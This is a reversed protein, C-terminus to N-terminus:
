LNSRNIPVLKKEELQYIIDCYKLTNTRHSIMLITINPRLKYFSEMIEKETENDLASTAEDLILFSPERYLARAIGIRQLQGGSLRVGREGVRTQYGEPTEEIFKDIKAQSTAIGIRKRDIDEQPIGFAINELITSDSLFINQPVHVISSQWSNINFSNISHMNKGDIMIRGKQPTILGMILDITTSKGSGTEGKIGIFDGKKITFSLDEVVNPIDASYTFSINECNINNKLTIKKTNNILLNSPLPKELIDLLNALSGKANQPMSCGEYIKQVMPLLRLSGLALAGLTPLASDLGGAKVMLYGALGIIAIGIPEILYRPYASLFFGRADLRRLPQDTEFYIKTYIPQTQDLLINRIAGIGEQLVQVLNRNLKVVKKSIRSIPKITTYLAISYVFFVIFGTSIAVKWNILILTILLGITILIAGMLNILPYLILYILNSIDTTISAIITSSNRNLHYSYPQYLTRKFAECSIDSGISASISGSLFINLLRIVGSIIAAFAFILTVPFLLSEPKTIGILFSIKQIIQYRWLNEPNALIGLFPIVAALSIIESCSSLISLVLLFKLQRIRKRSLHNKLLFLLKILSKDKHPLNSDSVINTM